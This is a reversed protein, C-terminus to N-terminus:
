GAKRKKDKDINPHKKDHQENPHKQQQSGHEKERNDNYNTPTEEGPHRKEFREEDSDMGPHKKEQREYQNGHETARHSSDKRPTEEGYIRNEKEDDEKWEKRHDCSSCWNNIEKEAQEKAWGYRKQLKGTLQEMKGNVQAIDDDTLKGWKEKVKGKIEHWKGSFQDKNMNIEKLIELKHVECVKKM